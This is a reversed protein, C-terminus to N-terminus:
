PKYKLFEEKLDQKFDEIKEHDVKKKDAKLHAKAQRSLDKQLKVASTIEVAVEAVTWRAIFVQYKEFISDLIAEDTEQVLAIVAVENNVLNESVTTILANQTLEKNSAISAGITGGAAFGLLIGLPGGLIGILSGILGGEFYDSGMANMLDFSDKVKITGAENKVIAVQALKTQDTQDFQCLNQSPRFLKAKLAFSLSLLM